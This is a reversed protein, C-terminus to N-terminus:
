IPACRRSRPRWSRPWGGPRRSGPSASSAPSSEPRTEASGAARLRCGAACAGCSVCAEADIVYQGEGESIAGCPCTDACAGCSICQDSIKYAM